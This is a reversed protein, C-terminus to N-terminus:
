ISAVSFSFAALSCNSFSRGNNLVDLAAAINEAFILQGWIFAMM